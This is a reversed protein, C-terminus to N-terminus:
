NEQFLAAIWVYITQTCVYLRPRYTKLWGSCQEPSWKLDKILHILTQEIKSGPLIKRFRQNAVLRRSKVQRDAELAHYRYKSSTPKNKRLERSVTSHHVGLLKAAQRLSHGAKLLISLEIRQQKSFHSCMEM